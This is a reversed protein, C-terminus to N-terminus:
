IEFSSLIESGYLTSLVLLTPLVTVAIWKDPVSNQDQIVIITLSICLLLVNRVVTLWSPPEAILEGFCGCETLASKRAKITGFLFALFLFSMIGAM